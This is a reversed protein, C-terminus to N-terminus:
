IVSRYAVLSEDTDIIYKKEECLLKNGAVRKQIFSVTIGSGIMLLTIGPMPTSARAITKPPWLNM